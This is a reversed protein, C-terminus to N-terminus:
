RAVQQMREQSEGVHDLELQVSGLANRSPQPEVLRSEAQRNTQTVLSLPPYNRRRLLQSKKNDANRTLASRKTFYILSASSGLADESEAPSLDESARIEARPGLIGDSNASKEGNPDQM